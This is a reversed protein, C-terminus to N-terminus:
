LIGYEDYHAAYVYDEDDVITAIQQQRKLEEELEYRWMERTLREERIKDALYKAERAIAALSIEERVKEPIVAELALDWTALANMTEIEIYYSGNRRVLGAKTHTMTYNDTESLLIVPSALLRFMMKLKLTLGINKKARALIERDSLPFKSKVHNNMTQTEFNNGIIGSLIAVIPLALFGFDGLHLLGAFNLNAIFALVPGGIGATLFPAIPYVLTWSLRGTDTPASSIIFNPRNSQVLSSM